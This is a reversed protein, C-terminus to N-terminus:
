DVGAETRLVGPILGLKGGHAEDGLRVVEHAKVGSAAEHGVEAEYWTLVGRSAFLMSSFDGLGAVTVHAPQEDLGGPVVAM